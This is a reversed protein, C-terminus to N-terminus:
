KSKLLEHLKKLNEKSAKLKRNYAKVYLKEDEIAAMIASEATTHCKDKRFTSKFGFEATRDITTYRKDTVKALTSYVSGEYVTYIKATSNLATEALEEAMNEFAERKRETEKQTKM